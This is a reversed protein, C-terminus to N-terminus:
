AGGWKRKYKVESNKFYNGHIGDCRSNFIVPTLSNFYTARPCV